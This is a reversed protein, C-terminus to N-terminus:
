GDTSTVGPRSKKASSALPPLFDLPDPQGLIAFASVSPVTFNGLLAAPVVTTVPVIPSQDAFGVQFGVDAGGSAPRYVFEGSYPFYAAVETKGSGDYDGPAPLTVGAGAVGFPITVVQGAPTIYQVEGLAPLYVAPETKGSGDYDGPMPISNGQGPIGFSFTFGPTLGPGLISWTASQPLYVAVQDSGVGFYDGSVPITNGVGPAGFPFTLGPKLGPALIDWTASQALYVAVQDSGAGFYDGPAPLTQGFGAVGIPLLLGPTQGTPDKIAYYGIQTLYAAVDEQGTAYYDGPAPITNDFGPTGLQVAQAAGGSSNGIVFYATGGLFFDPDALGDGTYDGPRASTGTPNLRAVVNYNTLPIFYPPSNPQAPHIEGYIGTGAVIVQGSSTIVLASGNYVDETANPTTPPLPAPIVATGATGFTADLTLNSTLRTVVPGVFSSKFAILLDGDPALGVDEVNVYNAPESYQATAKTQLLISKDLSGDANLRVVYPEESGNFNGGVAVIQGNPQVVLGSFVSIPTSQIGAESFSADLTGDANLRDIAPVIITGIAGSTSQLWGYPLIQGNPEIAVGSVRNANALVAMGGTGFTTDVQGNANLRTVVAQEAGTSSGPVPTTGALVIQGNAQLAAKEALFPNPTSATGFEVLGNTGFSSDPTGNANFRAVISYTPTYDFNHQIQTFGTIVIKGDPQVLLSSGGEPYSEVFQGAPLTLDAEGGNGFSADLAGNATLHILGYTVMPISGSPATGAMGMEVLSGDPEAAIADIGSLGTNNGPHLQTVTFGGTGFTPDLSGAFAMLARGELRDVIPRFRARRTPRTSQRPRIM